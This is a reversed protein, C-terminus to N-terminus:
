RRSLRLALTSFFFLHPRAHALARDVAVRNADSGGARRAATKKVCLCNARASEARSHAGASTARRPPPPPASSAASASVGGAPAHAHAHVPAAAAPAAGAGAWQGELQRLASRLLAIDTNFGEIERSRRM